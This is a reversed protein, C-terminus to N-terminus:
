LKIQIESRKEVRNSLWDAIRGSSILAFFSVSMLTLGFLRGLVIWKQAANRQEETLDIDGAFIFGSGVLFVFGLYLTGLSVLCITIILTIRLAKMFIINCICGM